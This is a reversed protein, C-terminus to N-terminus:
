ASSRTRSPSYVAVSVHKLADEGDPGGLKFTKRLQQIFVHILGNQFESGNDSLIIKSPLFGHVIIDDIFAEVISTAKKTKLVSLTLYHSFTDIM